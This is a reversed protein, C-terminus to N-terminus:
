ASLGIIEDLETTHSNGTVTLCALTTPPHSAATFSPSSTFDSNHSLLGLYGAHLILMYHIM